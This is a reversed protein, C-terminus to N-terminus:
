LVTVFSPVRGGIVSDLHGRACHLASQTDERWLLQHLVSHVSSQINSKISTADFSTKETTNVELGEVRYKLSHVDGDVNWLM